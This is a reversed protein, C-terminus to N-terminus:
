PVKYAARIVVSGIAGPKGDPFSVTVTNIERLAAPDLRVLKCSAYDKDKETLREACQELPVALPQGNLAIQVEPSGEQPRSVGIWLWAHDIKDLDPVKVTIEAKDKVKTAVKDGYCSVENVVRNEAVPKVFEARILVAERPKLALGTMPPQVEETLYPTLDANRGFRRVTMWAPAPMDLEIDKPQSSLNNMVVFVTSGDV